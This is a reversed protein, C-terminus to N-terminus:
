EKNQSDKLLQLRPRSIYKRGYPSSMVLLFIILFWFLPHRAFFHLCSISLIAFFLTLLWKEQYRFLRILSRTIAFMLISFGVIGYSALWDIYLNHAESGAFPSKIGSFHGPGLGFVPSYSWAKIANKWLLFRTEGQPRVGGDGVYIDHWNWCFWVFILCAGGFATLKALFMLFNRIRLDVSTRERYFFNIISYFVICTGWSVALAGSKTALGIMSSSILLFISQGFSFEKLHYLYMVAFPIVVVALATQNPNEAWGRFRSSGYFLVMDGIAPVGLIAIFLLGVLLTTTVICYAKLAEHLGQIGTAYILLLPLTYPFITFILSRLWGQAVVDLYVSFILGLPGICIITLGILKYLTLEKDIRKNIRGKISLFLLLLFFSLALLVEGPGIGMLCRLQTATSVSLSLGILISVLTSLKIM